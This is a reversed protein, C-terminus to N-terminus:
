KLQGEAPENMLRSRQMHKDTMIVFFSHRFNDEGQSVADFPVERHFLMSQSLHPLCILLSSLCKQVRSSM